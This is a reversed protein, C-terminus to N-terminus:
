IEQINQEIKTTPAINNSRSKQLVCSIVIIIFIIACLAIVAINIIQLINGGRM